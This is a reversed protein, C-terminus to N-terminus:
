RAASAIGGPFFHIGDRESIDPVFLAHSAARGRSAADAASAVEVLPEWCAGTGFPLKQDVM